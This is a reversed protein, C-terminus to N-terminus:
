AGPGGCCGGARVRRLEEEPDFGMADLIEDNTLGAVGRPRVVPDDEASGGGGPPPSDSCPSSGCASAFGIPVEVPEDVIIPLIVYCTPGSPRELIAVGPLPVLGSADIASRDSLDNCNVVLVTLPCGPRLDPLTAGARLWLVQRSETLDTAEEEIDIVQQVNPCGPGLSNDKRRDNSYRTRVSYTAGGWLPQITAFESVSSSGVERFCSGPTTANWSWSVADDNGDALRQRWGVVRNSPSPGPTGPRPEFRSVGGIPVPSNATWTGITFPSTSVSELAASKFQTALTETRALNTLSDETVVNNVIQVFRRYTGTRQFDHETVSFSNGFGATFVTRSNATASGITESITNLEPATPVDRTRVVSYQWSTRAVLLARQACVRVDLGFFQRWPDSLGSVICRNPLICDLCLPQSVGCPSDLCSDYFSPDPLLGIFDAFLFPIDPLPEDEGILIYGVVAYCGPIVGFDLVRATALLPWVSERFAQFSVLFVDRAPDTTVCPTVLLFCGAPDVPPLTDCVCPAGDGDSVLRGNVICLRRDKVILKTV